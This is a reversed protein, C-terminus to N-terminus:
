LSGSLKTCVQVSKVSKTVWFENSYLHTTTNVSQFFLFKFHITLYYNILVKSLDYWWSFINLWMMICFYTEAVGTINNYDLRSRDKVVKNDDPLYNFFIYILQHSQTNAFPKLIAPNAHGNDIWPFHKM